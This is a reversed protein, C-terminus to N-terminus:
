TEPHKSGCCYKWIFNWTSPLSVWKRHLELPCLLSWYLIGVAASRFKWIIYRGGWIRGVANNGSNWCHNSSGRSSHLELLERLTHSALVVVELNGQLALNLHEIVTEDTQLFKSIELLKHSSNARFKLLVTHGKSHHNTKVSIRLCWYKISKSFPKSEWWSM